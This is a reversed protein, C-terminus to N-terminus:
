YWNGTVKSSCRSCYPGCFVVFPLHNWFYCSRKKFYLLFNDDSQDFFAPPVSRATNLCYCGFRRPGPRASIRSMLHALPVAARTSKFRKGRVAPENQERRDAGTGVRTSAEIERRAIPSISLDLTAPPTPQNPRRPAATRLVVPTQHAPLGKTASVSGGRAVRSRM